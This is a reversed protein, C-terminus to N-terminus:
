PQKVASPANVGRLWELAEQEKDIFQVNYGALTRFTKVLYQVGSKQALKKSSLIASALSAPLDKKIKPFMKVVVWGRANFSIHGAERQDVLIRNLQHEQACEFSDKWFQKYAEDGIDGKFRMVMLRKDLELCLEFNHNSILTQM